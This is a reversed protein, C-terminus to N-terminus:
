FLKTQEFVEDNKMSGIRKFRNGLESDFNCIEKYPCYTCASKNEGKVKTPKIEVNGSLIEEAFKKLLKKTHNFLGKLENLTAVPMKAYNGEGKKSLNLNQSIDVMETDMAKVLRVDALIIGDMKLQERIQAEIDEPSLKKKSKIIPDDLKMYLAGGPIFDSIECESDPTQNQSTIVDLYTILQLQLGYYVKSLKLAKSSSKYDIIRIYKGEETKAIDMRDIKGNLVLKNGDELEIELPSYNGNEGFTLESGIVDFESNKIHLTIIWLARKIVRKLKISLFKLKNNSTFISYKHESLATDVLNSVITDIEEQSVERWSLKNRELHKSFKDMIDHMFVGVDLSAVKYLKREKVNLGYQLYFKFPCLAYSEMKSVSSKITTGYMNAANKKELRGVNNDFSLGSDILSIFEPNNKEYWDYTIKWRPDIEEGSKDKRSENALHVFTSKKTNILEEWTFDKALYNNEKLKPFMNRLENIVSSPTLTSGEEDTMPYSIHLEKKPVTLTKYINYNEELLLMKTDKAIEINNDLLLNRESDNLFGENNYHKPFLGENVGVIYLVNIHSNRSRAIDGIIVEDKSTPILGIQETLIGAKLISQYKDFSVNESGMTDVLEDLLKVLINWVQVYANAFMIDSNLIHSKDKIQELLNKINEEVHIDVLFKYLANTIGRINKKGALTSKFNSIPTIIQRRIINMKVNVEDTDYNWEELWKTGKIGYKLVYNEIKDIDNIDDINSLGTKLYTIITDTQYNHNCIDILSMVLCILPQLSLESKADLFYPINYREFIMKFIPEYIEINRSAIMINDYRYGEDRVKKLIDCAIREVEKHLNPMVSLDIYKTEGKYEEPPFTNFNKELHILEENEFKKLEDLYILELNAFKKLKEITRKNLLFLESDSKDNTIAITVDAIKNLAKIVELEQPTFGDFGDIWIKAGKIMKSQSIFNMVIHLDDDSDIFKGEIRKEYETYIYSLEKLKNSLRENKINTNILMEPLINYRKFESILDCVMSVLGPKRDVGRLLILEKELDKMISYVLMAKASKSITASKYGFENYIRYCLRKFSMVDVELIGGRGIIDSVDYEATLSFQEPVIYILAGDFENFLNEKIENMCYYSKGSGARGLVLKM